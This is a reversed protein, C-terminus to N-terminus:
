QPNMVEDNLHIPRTANMVLAYSVRDFVRFVMAVGARENPLKVRGGRVEDKVTEGRQHIALVHGPILDDQRGLSIVIVQYQGIMRVGGIIDIIQGSVKEAPPQPTFSRFFDEDGKPLLRDGKMIERVSDTVELTAPDGMNTLRAEGLYIAEYGLIESSRKPNRYVKGQRVIVYSGQAAEETIGRAYVRYGDASMVHDDGHEVIYPARKLDNKGVVRPRILFPEIADLPITPIADELGEERVRPSLKVTPYRQGSRVVEAPLAGPAQKVGDGRAGPEPPTTIVQGDRTVQMYPQGDVFFISLIDGPYILHPNAIHPNFHWLRPWMWPDRLFRASIDWLTDGKVVVYKEPYSAKLQVPPQPEPEVPAPSEVVEPEEYEDPEDPTGACGALGVLLVAALGVPLFRTSYHDKINM